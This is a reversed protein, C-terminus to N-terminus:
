PQETCEVGQQEAPARALRDERLVCRDDGDVPQEPGERQNASTGHRPPADPGTLEHECGKRPETASVLAGQPVVREVDGAVEALARPARPSSPADRAATIRM